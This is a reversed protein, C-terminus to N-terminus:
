TDCKYNKTSENIIDFVESSLKKPRDDIINCWGNKQLETYFNTQLISESFLPHSISFKIQAKNFIKKM